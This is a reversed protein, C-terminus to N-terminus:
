VSFKLGTLNSIRKQIAPGLKTSNYSIKYKGGLGFINEYKDELEPGKDDKSIIDLVNPAVEVDILRQFEGTLKLDPTGLPPLAGMSKKAQAYKRSRYSPEILEGTKTLGASMQLRNLEEFDGKTENLAEHVIKNTDIQM